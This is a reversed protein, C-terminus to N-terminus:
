TPVGGQSAVPKECVRVSASLGYEAGPQGTDLVGRGRRRLAPGREPPVIM